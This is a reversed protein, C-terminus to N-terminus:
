RITGRGVVHAGDSNAEVFTTFFLAKPLTRADLIQEASFMKSFAERGGQTLLDPRHFHLWWIYAAETRSMQKVIDRLGVLAFLIFGESVAPDFDLSGDPDNRAHKFFNAPEKLRKTWENRYEDKIVLSDFLLDQWRNKTKSVVHIIEYAACALTHISVPDGDNFWLTIATELQRRAADLKAITIKRDDAM